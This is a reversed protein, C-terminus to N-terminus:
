RGGGSMAQANKKIKAMVAQFAEREEESTEGLLDTFFARIMAAGEQILPVAKERASLFARRRDIEDKTRAVYGAEVLKEVHISVLSAPLHRERSIRSITMEDPHTSLYMLIDFSAPAVAHTRCFGARKEDYASSVANIVDLYNM